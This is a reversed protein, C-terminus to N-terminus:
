TIHGQSPHPPYSCSHSDQQYLKYRAALVKPPKMLHSPTTDGELPGKTPMVSDWQLKELNKGKEARIEKSRNKNMM